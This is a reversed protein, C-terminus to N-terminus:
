RVEWGQEAIAAELNAIAEQPTAGFRQMSVREGSGYLRAGYISAEWRTTVEELANIRERQEDLSIDKRSVWPASSSSSM